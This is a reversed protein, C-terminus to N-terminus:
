AEGERRGGEANASADGDANKASVEKGAAAPDDDAVAGGRTADLESPHVTRACMPCAGGEDALLERFADVNCAFGCKPCAGRAERRVRKGSAVCFPVDAKCADCTLDYEPGPAGCSPCDSESEPADPSKDPKRVVTEIKRRYADAIQARLAKDQVLTTALQLATQKMGARACEIVASTLIPAVHAPFKSISRSVRALLRASSAHDKRRVMTKVLAYSHLLLLLSKLEAPPRKGDRTLEQHTDFLQAHAIKYNGMEMEQRAIAVSTEAAADYDRLAVHLKFLYRADKVAGDSNEGSLHDLVMSTIQDDRAEGVVEIARDLSAGDGARRFSRAAGRADGEDARVLGARAHDGKSEFYHALAAYQEPTGAEGLHDAYLEVEGVERALEFADATERALLLFEIATAADGEARCRRAALAAAEASRSSRVLSFARRRDNLHDLRIRVASEFDRGLEYADAAEALKGEQEKARAYAAHLAPSKVRAMVPKALGFAKTRVYIEAAKEYEGAREYLQAADAPHNVSELLVACDRLLTAGGEELALQKGRAVDGVRIRCRAMGARGKKLERETQNEFAVARSFMELAADYEGRKELAAAHERCIDDLQSPDHAKALQTAEDWHKLDVRMQLAEGPRGARVFLEQATDYCDDREFLVLINGALMNKDEIHELRELSMVMSADGVFRYVRIAIEIEMHTMARHALQEWMEPLQMRAAVEWADQLRNLNLARVFRERGEDGSSPYGEVLAAHTRLLEKEVGGHPARCAVVGRSMALPAWGAPQPHTGVLEVISGNITSPAYAYVQFAQGNALAFVDPDAADWLVRALPERFEPIAPAQDNVPNFFVPAGLSDVFVCRTGLCNVEVGVIARGGEHRHENVQARDPVYVYRLFGRDTGYVLFDGVCAVCTVRGVLTGDEPLRFDEGETPDEAHEIVHAYIVGECLAFALRDSMVLKEVTGVYERQNVRSPAVSMAESADGVRYFWAQNNMGAAVHADGLALFAPEADIAITGEANTEVDAVSVEMLSSLYAVRSGRAGSLHPLSALFSTARGDSLGVTLVTGECAWGLCTVAVGRGDARLEDAPREVLRGNAVDLLKVVGGGAVAVRGLEPALAAHAVGERSTKEDFLRTAFLEENADAGEAAMLVVDGSEFAVLLYGDALWLHRVVAGYKHRFELETPVSSEADADGVPGLRYVYLSKGAVNVSLVNRAPTNTNLRAIPEPAFLLERAEGKIGLQLETDGAPSSVTVSKDDGALVLRGDASWAGCTVRKAHKGVVHMTKGVRSDYLLLNGKATAVSLVQGTPDWALHTFDQNRTGGGGGGDLRVPERQRVRYVLVSDGILQKSGTQLLMALKESRADWAFQMVAPTNLHERGDLAIEDYPAGSRDLVLVRLKIGSVALYQGDPSWAFTTPGAGVEHPAVEFLARM